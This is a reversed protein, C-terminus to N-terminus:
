TLGVLGHILGFQGALVAVMDEIRLLFSVDARILRSFDSDPQRGGDVQVAGLFETKGNHTNKQQM